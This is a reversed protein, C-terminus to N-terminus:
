IEWFEKESIQLQKLVHKFFGVKLERGAHVPVSVMEGLADHKMIHHSGTRRVLVFGLRSLKRVMEKGQPIQTM